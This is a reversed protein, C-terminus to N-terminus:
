SLIDELYRFAGEKSRSVKGNYIAKKVEEILDKVMYNENLQFKKIIEKGTIIDSINEVEKYRTLYNNALYEIHVKYKGMEEEPNLLVRTAIIDALSILLVDLTDDKLESFLGYLAKGSVDNSKYLVLPMMHKSIIKYLLNREKVSLKLREAIGRAIEAGTIEHGKFRVRGTDDVKKASPKGIDHFFAGLKMFALRNHNSAVVKRSHEEFAERVHDEFYGNAYIIDEAVKLTYLSHTLADVVHYKCEGVDKMPIIEPFIEKLINIEQDMYKFYYYTKKNELIKFLEQTLREGPMDRLRKKGSKILHKTSDDLDFQLDSMLRVARLMRIPDDDFADKYVHKVVKNQIDQIGGVPDIIKEKTFDDLDLIDLALSNITFDRKRLDDEITVGKMKTIDININNEGDIIRILKDKDGLVVIKNSIKSKLIKIIDDEKIDVVLDIDKFSRKLLLDRIYGGVVYTKIKNKVSIEKFLSLIFHM